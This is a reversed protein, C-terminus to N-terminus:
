TPTVPDNHCAELLANYPNTYAAIDVGSLDEFKNRADVSDPHIAVM